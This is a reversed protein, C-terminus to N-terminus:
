PSEDRGDRRQLSLLSKLARGKRGFAGVQSIGRMIDKDSEESFPRVLPKCRYEPRPTFLLMEWALAHHCRAALKPLESASSPYTLVDARACAAFTGRGERARPERLADDTENRHM